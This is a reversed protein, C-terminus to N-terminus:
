PLKAMQEAAADLAKQRELQSLREEEALKLEATQKEKMLTHLESDKTNIKKTLDENSKHIKEKLKVIEDQADKSDKKFDRLDSKYDKHTFNSCTSSGESDVKFLATIEAPLTSLPTEQETSCKEMATVCGGNSTAVGAAICTKFFEARANEIKSIQDFCQRDSDAQRDKDTKVQGLTLAPAAPAATVGSGAAAQGWGVSGFGLNIVLAAVALTKYMSINKMQDGTALMLILLISVKWLSSELQDNM